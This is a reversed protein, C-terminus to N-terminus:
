TETTLSRESEPDFLHLRQIPIGLEIEQGPQLREDTPLLAVIENEGVQLHVLEEDGLYEVVDVRAPLRAMTAGDRDRLALHEPRFGVIM